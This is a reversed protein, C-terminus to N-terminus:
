LSRFSSLLRYLEKEKMFTEVITIILTATTVANQIARNKKKQIYQQLFSHGSPSSINLGRSSSSILISLVSSISFLNIEFISVSLTWMHGKTNLKIIKCLWSLEYRFFRVSIEVLLSIALTTSLLISEKLSLPLYLCRFNYWLLLQNSAIQKICVFIHLPTPNLSHPRLRWLTNPSLRYRETWWVM